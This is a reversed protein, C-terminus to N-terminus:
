SLECFVFGVLFEGPAGHRSIAFKRTNKIGIRSQIKGLEDSM